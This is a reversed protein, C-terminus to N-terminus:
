LPRRARWFALGQGITIAGFDYKNAFGNGADFSFKAQDAAQVLAADNGMLHSAGALAAANAAAQLEGRILYLRALDIAFGMFAFIVPVLIVLLQM